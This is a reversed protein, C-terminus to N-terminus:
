SNAVLFFIRALFSPEAFPPNKPIFELYEGQSISCEVIKYPQDGTIRARELANQIESQPAPIQLYAGAYASCDYLDAM